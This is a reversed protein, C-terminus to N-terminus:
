GNGRIWSSRRRELNTAIESLHSCRGTTSMQWQHAGGSPRSRDHSVCIGAYSNVDDGLWWWIVCLRGALMVSGSVLTSEATSPKDEDGGFFSPCRRCLEAAGPTYLM